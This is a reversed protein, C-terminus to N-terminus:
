RGRKVRVEDFYAMARGHTNDTDSMLGIAMVQPATDKFCRRYDERLNREVSRWQEPRLEDFPEVWLLPPKPSAVFLPILPASIRQIGCGSAILLLSCSALTHRSM